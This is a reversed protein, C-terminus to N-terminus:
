RRKKEQCFSRTSTYVIIGILDIPYDPAILSLMSQFFCGKSAACTRSCTCTDSRRKERTQAKLARMATLPLAAFGPSEHQTGRYRKAFSFPFYFCGNLSAAGHDRHAAAHVTGDGREEHLPRAIVTEADGHPQVPLRAHLARGGFAAATVRILLVGDEDTPLKPNRKLGQATGPRKLFGNDLIKNPFVLGPPRRIEADGAVAKELKFRKQRVRFLFATIAQCGAVIGPRSNPQFHWCTPDIAFRILTPKDLGEALCREVDETMSTHWVAGLQIFARNSGGYIGIRGDCWPQKEAWDVAALLDRCHREDCFSDNVGFSVGCGRLEVIIYAYGARAFEYGQRTEFDALNRRHDRTVMIIAPLKKETGIQPLIVDLAIRTGDYSEIYLSAPPRLPYSVPDREPYHFPLSANVTSM